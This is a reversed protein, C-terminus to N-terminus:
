PATFFNSGTKSGPCERHDSVLHYFISSQHPPPGSLAAERRRRTLWRARSVQKVPDRWARAADRRDAVVVVARGPWCRVVLPILPWAQEVRTHARRGRREYVREAPCRVTMLPLAWVRQGWPMPSRLRGSRGRLGSVNVLHAPASRVPDRSLGPAPRQDGRRRDLTDDLGWVVGGWAVWVAM